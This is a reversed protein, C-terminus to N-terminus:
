GRKWEDKKEDEKGEIGEGVKQKGEQTERMTEPSDDQRQDPSMEFQEIISIFLITSLRYSLKQTFKPNDQRSSFM